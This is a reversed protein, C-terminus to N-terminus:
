EEEKGEGFIMALWANEEALRAEPDDDELMRKVFEDREPDKDHHRHKSM